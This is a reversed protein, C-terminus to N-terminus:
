PSGARPRAAFANLRRSYGFGLPFMLFYSWGALAAHGTAAIAISLGAVAAQASYFRTSWRTVYAEVDDLELERRRRSAHLHLLAFTVMVALYGASYLVM